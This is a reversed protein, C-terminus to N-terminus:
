GHKDEKMMETKPGEGFSSFGKKWAYVLGIAATGVMLLLFISQVIQGVGGGDAEM